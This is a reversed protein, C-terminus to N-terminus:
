EAYGLTEHQGGHQREALGFGEPIGLLQQLETEQRSLVSTMHGGYGLDRAALLINHAFPYVSGGTTISLHGLGSDVAAVHSLDLIIVLLVPANAM